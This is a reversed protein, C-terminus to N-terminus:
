AFLLRGASKVMLEGGLTTDVHGPEVAESIDSFLKPAILASRADAALWTQM